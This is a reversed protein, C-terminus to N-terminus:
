RQVDYIRLIAGAGRGLGRGRDDARHLLTKCFRDFFDCESCNCTYYRERVHRSFGHQRMIDEFCHLPLLAMIGRGMGRRFYPEPEPNPEEEVNNKSM